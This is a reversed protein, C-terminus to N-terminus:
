QARAKIWTLIKAMAAPSLTQTISSYEEPSGTTCEQFLHNLNPLVEATVNKNGGNELAKRIASLNEMPPVQLDKEGNLALVPCKVKELATAPDYKIFYQMWPSLLSKVQVNVFDEDSMGQPKDGNPIEKLVSKLYNTLELRLQGTDSSSKVIEFAKTNTSENQKLENESVGSARGISKQQLLLLKDGPIGPGALLVIFAIDKSRGAVM